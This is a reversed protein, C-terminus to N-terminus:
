IIKSLINFFQQFFLVDVPAHGLHPAGGVVHPIQDVGRDLKPVAALEGLQLQVRGLAKGELRYEFLEMAGVQLPQELVVM